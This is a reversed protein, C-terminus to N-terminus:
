IANNNELAIVFLHFRPVFDTKSPFLGAVELSSPWCLWENGTEVYCSLPFRPFVIALDLFPTLRVIFRSHLILPIQTTHPHPRRSGLRRRGLYYGWPRINIGDPINTVRVAHLFNIFRPLVHSSKMFTFMQRYYWRLSCLINQKLTSNLFM